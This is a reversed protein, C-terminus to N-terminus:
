PLINRIGLSTTTDVQTRTRWANNSVATREEHLATLSSNIGSPGSNGVAAFWEIDSGPGWVIKMERRGSRGLTTTVSSSNRVNRWATRGSMLVGVFSPAM